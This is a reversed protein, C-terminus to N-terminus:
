APYSPWLFRLARAVRGPRRPLRMDLRPVAVVPGMATVRRMQAETRIVPYKLEALYASLVAALGALAAGLSIALARRDRLPEAPRSAPEIVVLRESQRRTELDLGIEARLRAKADESIAARLTESERELALRAEQGLDEALMQQLQRLQRVRGTEAGTMYDLTAKAEAIRMAAALNILRHGLEGAVLRASEADGLDASVFVTSPEAGGGGWGIRVAKRLLEARREPAAAPRNAFLEYAQVIELMVQRTLLRERLLPLQDALPGAVTTAAVEGSVKPPAIQLVETARWVPRLTSATAIALLIGAATVVAILGARRRLMDAVDHLTLIPCM